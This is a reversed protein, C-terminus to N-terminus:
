KKLLTKIQELETKLNNYQDKLQNLEENKQKLEEIQKQQEQLAKVLPAIFDTYRLSLTRDKDAGITLISNNTGILQEIDQAIFGFNIRDDGQKLQYEVPRLKLILDLGSSIDKINQKIRIDSTTSLAVKGSIASINDNGLRITNDGAVAGNGIATSNSGTANSNFGFACSNNGSAISYGGMSISGAESANAAFGFAIAQQGTAYTTDNGSGNAGIAISTYATAKANTGIAIADNYLARAHSGIAYARQGKTEAQDGIAYSGWATFSTGMSTIKTGSGIAYSNLGDSVSANSGIAYCDISNTVSSTNGLSYCNTSYSQVQASSGFAYSNTSNSLVQAGQGFAYCNSTGSSNAQYGIAINNTNTAQANSGFAFSYQGSAHCSEGIATAYSNSAVCNTGMAQSYDGSAKSHYGSSFSNLGVDAPDLVQVRGVLFAEKLPYWLLQANDNVITPISLPTVNFYDNNSLKISSLGGVAFGGKTGKVSPVEKIWVRASDPTIRFYEVPIAKSQGSLGGVAFGGKTGKTFPTDEVYVRVGGQYVGFVVQGLKNKVEFIPDTDLANSESVVETIKDAFLAYPVSLLQSHTGITSYSAGGNPDIEIKVYVDGNKWPISAFTNTGVKTGKGINISIVGQANSSTAQTEKYYEVQSANELTIRVGISKGAIPAGNGDRIVAQYAFGQPTQSYGFLTCLVLVILLQIGTSTRTKM